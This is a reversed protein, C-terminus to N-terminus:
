LSSKTTSPLCHSRSHTRSTNAAFCRRFTLLIRPGSEPSWFLITIKPRFTSHRAPSSQHSASEPLGDTTGPTLSCSSCPFLLKSSLIQGPVPRDHRRRVEDGLVAQVHCESDLLKTALHGPGVHASSHERPIQSPLWPDCLLDLM